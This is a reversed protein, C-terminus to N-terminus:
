DQPPEIALGAELREAWLASVVAQEDEYSLLRLHLYEIAGEMAAEAAWGARYRETAKERGLGVYFDRVVARREALPDSLEVIRSAYLGHQATASDITLQRGIMGPTVLLSEPCTPIGKTVITITSSVFVVTGTRLLLPPEFMSLYREAGRDRIETVVGSIPSRSFPRAHRKPDRTKPKTEPTPM